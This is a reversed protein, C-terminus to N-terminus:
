GASVPRWHPRRHAPADGLRQGWRDPREGTLLWEVGLTDGIQRPDIMTGRFAFSSQRSTVRLGVIRTLEALIEEAIGDAFWAQDRAPSLDDFALVAIGVQAEESVPAPALVDSDPGSGGFYALVIAIPLGELTLVAVFTQTWGPLQLLPFLNNAVQVVSFAVVACAVVFRFVRRRSLEDFLRKVPTRSM